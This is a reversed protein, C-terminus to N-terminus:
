RGEESGEDEKGRGGTGSLIGRRFMYQPSNNSAREATLQADRIKALRHPVNILSGFSLATSRMKLLRREPM